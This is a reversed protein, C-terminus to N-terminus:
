WTPAAAGPRLSKCAATSTDSARAESMIRMDCALALEAGGGIADGQLVAIVPVPCERVADLAARAENAMHRTAQASRVSALDRLDGGAAFYRQGAGTLVVCAIEHDDHTQSFLERLKDLVSRSLPNHKEPRNITIRLSRGHRESLVEDVESM